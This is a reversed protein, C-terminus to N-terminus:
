QKKTYIRIYKKSDDKGDNGINIREISKPDIENLKETEVVKDDVYVIIDKPDVNGFFRLGKTVTVVDELNNKKKEVYTVSGKFKSEDPTFTGTAENPTYTGTVNYSNKAPTAQDSKFIVPMVYKTNVPEGNQKGPIWKPMGNVVRLAEADFAPHVSKVVKANSVSGDKEVVFSVIVRGQVSSEEDPWKINNRIYEMLAQTGGPFEPMTEPVDYVKSSQNNGEPAGFAVINTGKKEIMEKTIKVEKVNTVVTFRVTSGLPANLTITGDNDTEATQIVKGNQIVEVPVGAISSNEPSFVAKFKVPNSDNTVQIEQNGVKITTNKKGKKVPEQKQPGDYVYDTVTRANLALTIGVIPVLAFLKLLSTRNSKKHLMMNIRNKLTSHSIGNALSYGGIGAAKSILLYQYQRANIGKSLVEGDAEYEHITRLDMRLMWMAPNFWQLATLLDVFLLDWSHRLRIHGREHTLIAADQAEYDSRNMVIYHMWSFPSLETNGTVCIVTGDEQPHKESRHILLQIRILSILTHVLTALMGLVFLIPLVTTLIVSPQNDTPVVSVVSENMALEGLQSYDYDVMVTKHMTFVCLPLVFSAVATTLLVLRNVRHFTEHALMLRYFMYFVAILVAVKVDYILFDMM